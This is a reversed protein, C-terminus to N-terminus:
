RLLAIIPSIVVASAQVLQPLLRRTASDGVIIRDHPYIEPDKYAGARIAGLNYLAAMEQGNVTRLVIVNSTRAFDSTGEALAVARIMTMRGVIPYVGPKQVEGDLTVTRSGAERLGVTVRPDRVYNARLRTRVLDEVESLSRGSVIMDGALPLAIRGESDVRVERSAESLGFVDIALTDNVGVTYREEGIRYDSAVPPPLESAQVVHVDPSQVYKPGTCAACALLLLVIPAHKM